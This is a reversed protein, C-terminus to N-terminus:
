AAAGSERRYAAAILSIPHVVRVAPASNRLGKAIQMQCGPNGTAVLAAGTDLVHSVKRELLLDAQKPQSIAYIGASGCCWSSEKLEVISLGPVLRLLARPQRVIKQGHALHCSEHYTVTVPQDFPAASPPRCGIQDLWEHVDRVKADWAVARAAYSPEGELLPGYRRLHSGCGGANSIIADYRDPPFLDIMRQALDRASQLDGNHAHLSGCCPQAPPTEVSCGNALLVDATDRNVDPYVLDQVCGTLLAVRYKATGRPEERAEIL